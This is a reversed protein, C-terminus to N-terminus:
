KLLSIFLTAFSLTLIILSFNIIKNKTDNKKNIKVRNLLTNIDVVKKTSISKDPYIKNENEDAQKRNHFYTKNM